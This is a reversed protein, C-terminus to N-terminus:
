GVTGLFVADTRSRFTIVPLHQNHCKLVPLHIIQHPTELTPKSVWNLEVTAPAHENIDPSYNTTSMDVPRDRSTYSHTSSWPM